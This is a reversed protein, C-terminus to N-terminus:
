LPTWGRVRNGGGQVCSRHVTLRFQKRNVIPTQGYSRFTTQMEGAVPSHAGLTNGVSGFSM